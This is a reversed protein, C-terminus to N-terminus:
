SKKHLIEMHSTSPSVHLISMHSVLSLLDTRYRQRYMWGTNWQRSREAWQISQRHVLAALLLWFSALCTPQRYAATVGNVCLYNVPYKQWRKGTCTTKEWSLLSPYLFQLSHALAKVLVVCLYTVHSLGLDLRRKRGSLDQTIRRPEM